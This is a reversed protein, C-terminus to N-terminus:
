HTWDGKDDQTLDRKYKNKVHDRFFECLEQRLIEDKSLDHCYKKERSDCCQYKGDIEIAYECDLHTVEDKM